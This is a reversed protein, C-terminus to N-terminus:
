SKRGGCTGCARRRRVSPSSYRGLVGKGIVAGPQASPLLPLGRRALRGMAAHDHEHPTPALNPAMQSLIAHVGASAPPSPPREGAPWISMPPRGRVGSPSRRILLNPTRTGGPTCRFGQTHLQRMFVPFFSHSQPAGRPVMPHPTHTDGSLGRADAGQRPARRGLYGSGQLM